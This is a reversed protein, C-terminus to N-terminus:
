LKSPFPTRLLFTSQACPAFIPAAQASPEWLYCSGDAHEATFPAFTAEWPQLVTPAAATANAPSAAGPPSPPPFLLTPTSGM